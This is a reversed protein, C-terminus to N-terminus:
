PLWCGECRARFAGVGVWSRREDSLVSDCAKECLKPFLPSDPSCDQLLPVLVPQGRPMILASSATSGIGAAIHLRFLAATGVRLAKSSPLSFFSATEVCSSAYHYTGALMAPHECSFV